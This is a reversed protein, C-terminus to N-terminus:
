RDLPFTGALAITFSSEDRFTVFKSQITFTLAEIIDTRTPFLDSDSRIPTSETGLGTGHAAMTSTIVIVTIITTLIIPNTRFSHSTSRPEPIIWICIGIADHEGGM